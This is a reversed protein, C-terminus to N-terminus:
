DGCATVTSVDLSPVLAGVAAATSIHVSIIKTNGTERRAVAVLVKM